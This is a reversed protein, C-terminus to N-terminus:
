KILKSTLKNSRSYILMLFNFFLISTINFILYTMSYGVNDYFFLYYSLTIILNIFILYFLLLNFYNKKEKLLFFSVKFFFLLPFSLASVILFSVLFYIIYDFTSVYFGSLGKVKSTILFTVIFSNVFNTIIWYYLQRKFTLYNKFDM